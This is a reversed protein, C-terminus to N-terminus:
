KKEWITRAGLMADVAKMIEEQLRQIEQRNHYQYQYHQAMKYYHQESKSLSIQKQHGEHWTHIARYPGHRFEDSGACRCNSKGCRRYVEQPTGKFVLDEHGVKLCCRKLEEILKVVGQRFRSVREKAVTKM